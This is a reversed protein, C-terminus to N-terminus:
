RNTAQISPPRSLEGRPVTDEPETLRRYRDFLSNDARIGLFQKEQDEAAQPSPRCSAGAGGQSGGGEDLAM